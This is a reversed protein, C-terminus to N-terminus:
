LRSLTGPGAPPSQALRVPAPTPQRVTPLVREGLLALHDLDGADILRLYIRSAGAAQYREIKEAVDAPSGVLGRPRMWEVTTGIREARAATERATRGCLVTLAVSTTIEGVDRGAAACAAALLERRVALEDLTSDDANYEGAYRAVLHPLRTTNKGGLILPPHPRQAPPAIGPCRVTFHCGEHEFPQGPGITWLGTCIAAAEDLIDFREEAAPFRVGFADHEAAFWGAGLGLEVRGGSSRDLQAVTVALAAPSRLTAPTVLSGVRLTTTRALVTAITTWADTAVRTAQPDFMHLLHDSRFLGGFGAEEAIRALGLATADDHGFHPEFTIRLDV